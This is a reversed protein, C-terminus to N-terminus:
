LGGQLIDPLCQFSYIDKVGPFQVPLEQFFLPIGARYPPFQPEFYDCLFIETLRGPHGPEM